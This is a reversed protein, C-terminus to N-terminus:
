KGGKELSEHLAELQDANMLEYMECARKYNCNFRERIAEVDVSKAPKSWKGTFRKRSRLAHFYYDYQLRKPLQGLQNM